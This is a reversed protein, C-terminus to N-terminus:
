DFIEDIILHMLRQMHIFILWKNRFIANRRLGKGALKHKCFEETRKKTLWLNNKMYAISLRLM